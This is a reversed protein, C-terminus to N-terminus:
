FVVRGVRYFGLDFGSDGASSATVEAYPLDTGALLAHWPRRFRAGLREVLPDSVEPPPIGRPGWWPQAPPLKPRERVGNVAIQQTIFTRKRWVDRTFALCWTLLAGLRNPYSTHSAIHIFLWIWWSV